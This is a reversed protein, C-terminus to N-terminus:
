AACYEGPFSERGQCREVWLTCRSERYMKKGTTTTTTTTSSSAILLVFASV